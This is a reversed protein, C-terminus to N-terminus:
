TAPDVDIVLTTRLTSLDGATSGVVCARVRGTETSAVECGSGGVFGLPEPCLLPQLDAFCTSSAPDKTSSSPRPDCPRNARPSSGAAGNACTSSACARASRSPLTKTM